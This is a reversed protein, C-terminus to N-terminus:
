KIVRQPSRAAAIIFTLVIYTLAALFFQKTDM